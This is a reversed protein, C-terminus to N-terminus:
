IAISTPYQRSQVKGELMEIVKSAPIEKGMHVIKGHVLTTKGSGMEGKFKDHSQINNLENGKKASKEEKKDNAHFSLISFSPGEFGHIVGREFRVIYLTNAEMKTKLINVDKGENEEKNLGGTYLNWPKEGSCILVREGFDHSHIHQNELTRDTHFTMTYLSTEFGEKDDALKNIQEGAFLEGKMADKHIAKQFSSFDGKGLEIIKLGEIAKQIKIEEIISDSNKPSPPPTRKHTTVIPSFLLPNPAAPLTYKTLFEKSIKKKLDDFNYSEKLTMLLDELTITHQKHPHSLM